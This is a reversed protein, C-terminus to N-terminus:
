LKVKSSGGRWRAIWNSVVPVIVAMIVTNIEADLSEDWPLLNPWVRRIFILVSLVLTASGAGAALVTGTTKSKLIPKQPTAM